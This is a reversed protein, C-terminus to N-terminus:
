PAQKTWPAWRESWHVGCGNATLTGVTSVVLKGEGDVAVAHMQKAGSGAHTDITAHATAWACCDDTVALTASKGNSSVNLTYEHGRGGWWVGSTFGSGCPAKAPHPGPKPHDPPSHHPPPMAPDHSHNYQAVMIENIAAVLNPNAASVDHLQGQDSEMDYLWFTTDGDATSCPPKGCVAVGSWKGYRINQTVACFVARLPPTLSAPTSLRAITRHLSEVCGM